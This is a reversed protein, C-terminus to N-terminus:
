MKFSFDSASVTYLTADIQAIVTYEKVTEHRKSKIMFYMGPKCRLTVSSTSILPISSSWKKSSCIPSHASNSRRWHKRWEKAIHTSKCDRDFVNASGSSIYIDLWISGWGSWTHIAHSRSDATCAFVPGSDTIRSNCALLRSFDSNYYSPLSGLSTSLNNSPLNSASWM